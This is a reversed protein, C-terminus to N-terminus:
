GTCIWSINIWYISLFTSGAQWAFIGLMGLDLVLSFIQASQGPGEVISSFVVSDKICMAELSRWPTVFTEHWTKLINIYSKAPSNYKQGQSDTCITHIIKKRYRWGKCLCEILCFAHLLHVKNLFSALCHSPVTFPHSALCSCVPAVESLDSLLM